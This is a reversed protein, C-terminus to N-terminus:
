IFKDAFTEDKTDVVKFMVGIVAAKFYAQTNPSENEHVIHLELPFHKGNFTHESGMRTVDAHNVGSYFSFSKCKFTMSSVDEKDDPFTEYYLDSASTTLYGQQDKFEFKAGYKGVAVGDSYHLEGYKYAFKKDGKM